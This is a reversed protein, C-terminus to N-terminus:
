YDDNYEFEDIYMGPEQSEVPGYAQGYAQGGAQRNYIRKTLGYKYQQEKLWAEHAELAQQDAPEGREVRNERWRERWREHEAKRAQTTAERREQRGQIAELEELTPERTYDEV